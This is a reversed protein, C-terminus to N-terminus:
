VQLGEDPAINAVDNVDIHTHTLTIEISDVFRTEGNWPRRSDFKQM